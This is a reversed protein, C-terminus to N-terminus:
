KDIVYKCKLEMQDIAGSYSKWLKDDLECEEPLILALKPFTLSRKRVM